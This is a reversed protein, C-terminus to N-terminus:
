LQMVLATPMFIRRLFSAASFQLIIKKHDWKEEEEGIIISIFNYYYFTLRSLAM